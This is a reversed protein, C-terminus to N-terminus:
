TQSLFGLQIYDCSFFVHGARCKLYVVVCDLVTYYIQPANIHNFCIHLQLFFTINVNGPQFWIRQRASDDPTLLALFEHEFRM